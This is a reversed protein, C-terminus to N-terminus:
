REKKKTEEEIAMKESVNGGVEVRADAETRDKM